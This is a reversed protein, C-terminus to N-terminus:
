AHFNFTAMAEYISGGPSLTSSYLVMTDIRSRGFERDAARELAERTKRYGRGHNVRGITLHASFPRREREFGCRAATDEVRRALEMLPASELGVWIVHPRALDPFGGVGRAIVEFPPTRSVIESLMPRMREIKGIDVAPGLFKLTLHLNDRRTWRIGDDRTRVSDVFAFIAEDVEAAM